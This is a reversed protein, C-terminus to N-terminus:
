RGMKGKKFGESTRKSTSLCYIWYKRPALYLKLDKNSENNIKDFFYFSKLIKIQKLDLKLLKM